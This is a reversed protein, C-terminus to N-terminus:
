ETLTQFQTETLRGAELLTEAIESITMVAHGQYGNQKLRDMVGKEHDIFVVIDKVNLGVSQLKAAGAMASRGSILIDDVVVATEGEHYQGEVLRRAGHAKVEKRPFIMPRDLRLALGTATPLAGYPIGAIREFRLTKLITAYAGIVKDFVQPNSIITRLDVYYSFTEGSAQVFNGFQLCGIDYLQLILDEHPLPKLLCIDSVWVSCSPHQQAVAERVQNVQAKLAKVTELYTKEGAAPILVETPVPILLGDGDANLGAELLKQLDSGETWVSRALICREPATARIRALVDPSPAGVELGVQKPLGWTRAENGLHLYFPTDASPYAQLTQATPNSTTCLVFIGLDPYLLFPAALDQGSYANLTVADVQWARFITQAFITNSNLDSHNADLIIPIADPICSLTEHMLEIGAVGLLRYFEPNLKFACVSDATDAILSQLWARLKGLQPHDHLARELSYEAQPKALAAYCEPWVEPSPDLGVYLLSQNQSIAKSLKDFFNM